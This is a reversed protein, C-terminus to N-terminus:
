YTMVMDFSLVQQYNKTGDDFPRLGGANNAKGSYADAIFAVRGYMNPTFYYKPGFGFRYFSGDYGSRGLSLGRANPSGFSPLVGGV